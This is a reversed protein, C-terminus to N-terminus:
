ENCVRPAITRIKFDTKPDQKPHIIMKADAAPTVPVVVLGCVIRAQPERKVNLTQPAPVVPPRTSPDATPAQFIRLYPNKGSSFDRGPEASQQPMPQWDLGQDAAVALTGILVLHMAGM